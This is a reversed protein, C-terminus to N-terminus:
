CIDVHQALDMSDHLVRLVEISALKSSVRFMVFHRGKRGKRAVHLSFIRPGIEKRERCGVMEPGQALDQLAIRLTKEYTRAQAKGFHRVTWQLIDAFDRGAVETLSVQWCRKM